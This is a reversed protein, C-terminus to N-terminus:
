NGGGDMTNMRNTLAEVMSKLENIEKDKENLQKALEQTASINLMSLADYDVTHFDDVEKGYVFVDGIADNTDLIAVFSHRQHSEIVIDKQGLHETILRVKDGTVLGHNKLKITVRDNKQKVRDANKYINPITNTSKTIAQPYVKAVDQAIVKKQSRNGNSVVDIYQYDSIKLQKIIALDKKSDSIQINKKIRQDSHVWLESVAVTGDAIIAFNKNDNTNPFWGIHETDKNIYRFASFNHSGTTAGDGTRGVVHLTAQPDTTGIGVNGGDPMLVLKKSDHYGRFYDHRWTWNDGSMTNAGLYVYEDNGGFQFRRTTTSGFITETRIDGSVDLTAQPETTGIGVKGWADFTIFTGDRYGIDLYSNGPSARNWFSWTAHNGDDNHHNPDQLALREISHSGDDELNVENPRGIHLTAQPETTGIGVNGSAKNLSMLPQDAWSPNNYFGIRIADKSSGNGNIDGDYRLYGAWTASDSGERFRLETKGMDKSQLELITKGSNGSGVRMTNTQNNV